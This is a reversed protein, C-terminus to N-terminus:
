RMVQYKTWHGDDDLWLDIAYESGKGRYAAQPPLRLLLDDRTVAFLERVIQVDETCYDVAKEIEGDRLWQAAQKGDATKGRGLTRKAVDDLKVWRGTAAKIEDFLDITHPWAPPTGQPLLRFLIPLDFGNINYGVVVTGPTTLRAWLDEIMGSTWTRWGEVIDYTRAFGFRIALLQAERPMAVLHQDGFFDLTEIDLFIHKM